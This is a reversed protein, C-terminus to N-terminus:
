TEVGSRMAANNYIMQLQEDENLISEPLMEVVKVWFDRSQIPVADSLPAPDHIQQRPKGM